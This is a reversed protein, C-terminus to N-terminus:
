REFGFEGVRPHAAAITVDTNSPVASAATEAGVSAAEAADAGSVGSSVPAGPPSVQQAPATARAHSTRGTTTRRETRQMRLSNERTASPHPGARWVRVGPARVTATAVSPAFTVSASLLSGRTRYGADTPRAYSTLVVVGGTSGAAAALLTVGLVRSRWRNGRALELEVDQEPAPAAFFEEEGYM